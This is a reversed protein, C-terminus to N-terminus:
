WSSIRPAMTKASRRLGTAPLTGCLARFGHMIRSEGAQKPKLITSTSIRIPKGWRIEVRRATLWSNPIPPFRTGTGSLTSRSVPACDTLYEYAHDSALLDLGNLDEITISTTQEGRQQGDRTEAKTRTGDVRELFLSTRSGDRGRNTLYGFWQGDPSFQPYFNFFGDPEITETPTLRLTQAITEYQERSERVFDDFLVTGPIGTAAEIVKSFNTKGSEAAARSIDAVVQEGFRHTLYIVFAFGQNYVTEREISTKSSFTGMREFGLQTGTLIRTRLIMDRHADWQDYFLGARQYQATGEAFWAPIGVSTFPLTFIGKPYGYLVDPRRVNEYSLWQVYIAPISKDRTMSAQIQIIHLYEHTIVNRLWRHTGRLPTDLAPVWIEIKDDFFFAAGNSYDERDRLVISVKKEPQHDYLRTIPGHIEEAIKSVVQATRSSGEQFHVYFNPSEITFWPLHNKPYDYFQPNVQAITERPAMTLLLAPILLALIAVLSLHSLHRLPARQRLHAQQSLHRRHLRAVRRAMRVMSLISHDKGM